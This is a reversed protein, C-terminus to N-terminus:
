KNTSKLEIFLAYSCNSAQPEASTKMFNYLQAARGGGGKKKGDLLSGDQAFLVM